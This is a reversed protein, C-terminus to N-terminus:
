PAMVVWDFDFVQPMGLHPVDKWQDWSFAPATQHTPGCIVESILSQSRQYNTNKSDVGGFAYAGSSRLDCRASIANCADGNSFPDNKYDNSNM